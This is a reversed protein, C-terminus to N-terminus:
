ARNFHEGALHSGIQQRYALSSFRLGFSRSSIDCLRQIRFADVEPADDGAGIAREVICLHLANICVQDDFRKVLFADDIGYPHESHISVIMMMPHLGDLAKADPLLVVEAIENGGM